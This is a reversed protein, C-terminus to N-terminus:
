NRSAAQPVRLANIKGVIRRATDQLAPMPPLLRTDDGDLLVAYAAAPTFVGLTNRESGRRHVVFRAPHRAALDGIWDTSCQTDAGLAAIYHFIDVQQYQGPEVAGRTQGDCLIMPVRAGARLEGFLELEEQKLPLMAHHDGVIILVGNDFFNSDRLRDHFTGIQADTYRFAEEESRIGNAPNVFPHHSSITQVCLFYPQGAHAAARDLVRLFLAEDPASDFQYRDWGAYCPQESGEVRDFGISRAWQGTNAFGLDMAVLFETVYGQDHLIRPLAAPMDYFGRYSIGGMDTHYAPPYVPPHGTLVALTADETVFGNAYFNTFAV